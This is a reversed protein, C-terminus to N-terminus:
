RRKHRFSSAEKKAVADGDDDAAKTEIFRAEEV